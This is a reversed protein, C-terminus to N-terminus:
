KGPVLEIEYNGSELDLHYIGKEKRSVYKLMNKQLSKARLRLSGKSNPPINVTYHIKKDTRKWSSIIKGQPGDFEAEFFDLGSVFNPELIINSFGPRNPDPKIGGIAKYYWANIEGFMIHNYSIDNKEKALDWNEPFTSLGSAMWWGWSPYTEQSAVEYALDAYGNDSLANLITKSGLLGVDIHKNDAVVREALREAVKEVLEEPVIGWHLATSQETQSGSGYKGTERNLYKNNIADKINEALASYTLQDEKKGIIKAANALITADVYYYISSTYEVPTKTKVPIWDGLGWSTLNNPSIETIHNVYRKINPYCKQLLQADGYFLYINWPIIAISSTWDPGNAWSYGWGNSPIIAPLVGNPQQEDRHDALWKEYITIGDFNYLGTEVAIHADGTWGNKERQPCDTPYGFLNALYSSNSAAWIKNLTTSSSNIFGRKPIDSHLVLGSISNKTLDIPKSGIVEVYQFGKYNFRPSFTELGKGRLTYIDTQFPDTDDTPRYHLDINSLDLDGISDILESHIVRIVTGSDGEVKLKTVGAINKGLDFIYRQDNIKKIEKPVIEEVKRIPHMQQSVIKKSPAQTIISNNWESDNFNNKNWGPKELNNDVHEGTYISNFVVPSLITKWHQDTSVIEITGDTYEMRLDLCFKPRARWPAEHFFWVATSQHNYWGNGLLVGLTNEERILSTVDHSVYLNRVDYRTYAPDLRHNGIRQGNIQLEYLGAAAIYVFASKLEKRKKFEKRFYPAPKIAIDRSDTIWSGQWNDIRKMGTRFTSVQSNSGANKNKDWVRVTWFYKTFPQLNKGEYIARTSRSIKKKTNWMDGKGNLVELSDTGVQIQYGHQFAGKRSDDIRWTFRPNDVDVALPAQLYECQMGIAKIDQTYGNNLLSCIIYCFLSINFNM